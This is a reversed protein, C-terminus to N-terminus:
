LYTGTQPPETNPPQGPQPGAPLGGRISQLQQQAAIQQAYITAQIGQVLGELWGVLQAKAVSLEAESPTDVDSFPLSLRLLEDHLEPSLASGLETISQEYIDRMRERSPEDLDIDRVQELLQRMMAGVRMVKAPQEISEGSRVPSADAAGEEVLEAPEVMSAAAEGNGGATPDSM